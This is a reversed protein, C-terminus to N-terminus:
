HRQKGKIQIQETTIMERISYTIIEISLTQTIADISRRIFLSKTITSNNL